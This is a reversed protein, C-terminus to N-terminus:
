PQILAGERELELFPLEILALAQEERFALEVSDSRIAVAPDRMLEVIFPILEGTQVSYISDLIKARQSPLMSPMAESLLRAGRDDGYRALQLAALFGSEGGEEGILVLEEVLEGFGGAEQDGQLQIERGDKGKGAKQSKLLAEYLDDLPTSSRSGLTTKAQKFIAPMRRNVPMELRELVTRQRSNNEHRLASWLIKAFEDRKVNEEESALRALAACAVDDNKDDCFGAVVRVIESDNDGLAGIAAVILDTERTRLHEIMERDPAEELRSFGALVPVLLDDNALFVKKLEDKLRPGGLDVAAEIARFSVYQDADNLLKGVEESANRFGKTGVCELAAARVRWRPDGLLEISREELLDDLESNKKEGEQSFRRMARRMSSNQGGLNALAGLASTLVDENEHELLPLLLRVTQEGPLDKLRRILTHLINVDGEREIADAVIGFVRQRGAGVLADLSAERILVDESEIFDRLIPIVLPGAGGLVGLATLKQDRNGFVLDRALVISRRGVVERLVFDYQAERLRSREGIPLGPNELLFEEIRTVAKMAHRALARRARLARDRDAAMLERLYREQLQLDEDTLGRRIQDASKAWRKWVGLPIENSQEALGLWPNFGEGGGRAEELLGLAGLRVALRPHELLGVLEERPFDERSFVAEKVFEREREVGMAEMAEVWVGEEVDERNLRFDWDGNSTAAFVVM